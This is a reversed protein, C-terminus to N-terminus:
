KLSALYEGLAALDGESIKEEGFAPMRSRPNHAKPNRVHEAIWEATRGPKSGVHALSPGGPGRGGPGLGGPGLGGPGLGGPGGPGPGGPGPPGGFRPGGPGGEELRHCRTCRNAKFVQQGLALQDGAPPAAAASSAEASPADEEVDV